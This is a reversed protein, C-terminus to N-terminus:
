KADAAAAVADHLLKESDPGTGVFVKKVLGDRGIIVTQPIGNVKFAESVKGDSDLLATFTFKNDKMFQEVKDKPEQVDVALAVVGKDKFTQYIKDVHPLGERCPPCWTAWFDVIVVKGKFDKLSVVKDELNKASFDPAPKGELAKVVDEGGGASAQEKAADKADTPPAWAFQEAKVPAGPVVASYDVTVLAEKVDTAGRKELAKSMDLVARRVLHTGPDVLLTVNANSTPDSLKLTNFAKGDVTSDPLKEANGLNETLAKTPTSTLALMLSPNQTGIVQGYPEPM